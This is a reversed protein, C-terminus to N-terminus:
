QKNIKKNNRIVYERKLGETKLIKIWYIGAKRSAQPSKKIRIGGSTWTVETEIIITKKKKSKRFGAILFISQGSGNHGVGRRM